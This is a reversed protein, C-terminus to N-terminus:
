DSPAPRLPEGLEERRQRWTPADLVRVVGDDDMELGTLVQARLVVREPTGEESAPVPWRYVKRQGDLTVLEHGDPRFAAMRATGSHVRPPGVPKGTAVDRLRAAGDGSLTLMTRGDPSFAVTPGVSQHQFPRSLLVGAIPDWIRVIGDSSATLLRRGDAHFAVRVVEGSHPLPPGLPRGTHADWVRATRDRSGTAVARGDPRFAVANVQGQHDLPPGLPEGGAVKWLWGYGKGQSGQTGIVVTQGDPSFAAAEIYGTHRLATGLPAGTAADWFRATFDGDGTLAVRGDPSFALASAPAGLRLPPGVPTGTRADWLRASGDNWHGGTLVTRGDPSLAVSGVATDPGLPWGRPPPPAADWLRAAKDGGGTLVTRGDPGWAVAQVIAQHPLPQGVPRGTQADWLRATRDYSATAVLRGDPSFAAAAVAGRHRLPPGQGEGTQTDWLCAKFDSQGTVAVRGAPHFATSFIIPTDGAPARLPRGVPRGTGADWLRASGDASGTLVTRGDPGWAVSWVEHEHGSLEARLAGTGADWIRAAKDQHGTCILKGDPSWAAALVWSRAIEPFPRPAPNGHIDRVEASGAALRRMFPNTYGGAPDFGFRKGPDSNPHTRWVILLAHGDPSFAAARVWGPVLLPQGTPEGTCADWFRISGDDGGTLIIRGDPSYAATLVAGGHELWARLTSMQARWCGLNARIAGQLDPDEDPALTLSRALWLMGQGIEGSECLAQGRDYALGAALRRSETLAAQTHGHELRIREAADALKATASKQQLAYLVALVAVAVLALAALAIAAALGPNRRCWRGLREAPGTRRARIPEGSLVRGLDEALEAASAYRRAPDKALCKLCITELEAPVSRDLKRPPTPEEFAIRRLIEARDAADVAPRGTLLEYLTAGLAYVDARHDVLGHKALAQEPAMYRLTGLLDGSMTLGADPGFRALGFDSVYLKGAADLLLNAPKIDRHVIGLSHAHELAGAAQAVLEAAARYFARGHPGSRETSLAAVPATPAPSRPTDVGRDSVEVPPNVGGARGRIVDALTQGEIFEMAYYHVGRECGVAYVSVIHEHKLSAAALAENKFRQLQRPDMAAAWPLVKLAVRRRLSRQEAEYVVGMGGRGVERIIRYDGLEGLPATGDATTEKEGASHSLDALLALAPLLERLEAAHEPHERLVAELDIPAGAELRATLNEVLDALVAVRAASRAGAQTSM